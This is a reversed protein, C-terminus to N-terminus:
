VSVVAFPCNYHVDTNSDINADTCYPCIGGYAAECDAQTCMPSPTFTLLKAMAGANQTSLTMKNSKLQLVSKLWTVQTGLALIKSEAKSSCVWVLLITSTLIRSLISTVEEKAIRLSHALTARQSCLDWQTLTVVLVLPLQYRTSPLAMDVTVSSDKLALM